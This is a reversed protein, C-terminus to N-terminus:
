ESAPQPTNTAFLVRGMIADVVNRMHNRQWIPVAAGGAGHAELPPLGRLTVVWAPLRPSGRRSHMVYVAHIAKAQFPSGRGDTLIRDLATLFNIEPDDAVYGAYVERASSLQATAAGSSPMPRMNPDPVGHAVCVIFFLRSSAAELVVDFSRRYPDVFGAAASPLVLGSNRYTVRWIAKGENEEGLFPTVDGSLTAAAADPTESIAHLGTLLNARGIAQEANAIVNQM